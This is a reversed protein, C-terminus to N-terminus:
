ANSEWVEFVHQKDGYLSITVMVPVKPNFCEPFKAIKKICKEYVKCFMQRDMLKPSHPIHPAMEDPSYGLSSLASIRIKRSDDHKEQLM